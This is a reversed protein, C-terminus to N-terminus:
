LQGPCQFARLETMRFPNVVSSTTIEFLVRRGDVNLAARFKEPAATPEIQARDFLRHLAWPGELVVGSAGSPGPPSIQLRIQGTGKTGPWQISQPVAPGHAYRLMQGDIDMSFQLIAPDMEIPKFDVRVAPGRGGVFFVNRIDAARQFQLLASGREVMSADGSKRFRWPKVATDVHPALTKQFFEDLMANPAFLRAFDEPTVERAAGPVFPYRGAIAKNCFEGISTSLNQSINDRTAGLAQNAGATSLETVMSRVPEPMRAAEGRVKNALESPPPVNGSRVATDTAIMLTYVENLLSISQDLPAPVGQAPATVYARLANFRDDVLSEIRPGAPTAIAAPTRPGLLRELSKKADKAAEGVKDVTKDVANKPDSATLTVERVIARLLRALPSDPASLVRAVQITQTLNPSKVLALDAVLREWQNAYDILYLRKVENALSERGAPTQARRANDSERIGLVWTEEDALDRVVSDLAKAFGRHYGDYTYLGPIGENLSRGSKRTFVLSASQGGAQAIRFEPNDAGAGERKLRNYVRQPFPTQALNTRVQAILREDPVVSEQMTGRELLTDVHTFLERKQEADLMLGGSELDFAVWGKIVDPKMRAPDVLMLYTKLTEYRLEPNAATGRLALAIRDAIWPSLTQALLRQYAQDTGDALKRGQFLGLMQSLKPSEPDVSDTRPLARVKALVDLLIRPDRTVVGPQPLAKGLQDVKAQVDDLYRLNNLYSWTWGGLAAIAVAATAVTATWKLRSLRREWQLNTGALPSEAFIVSDLLRGLFFAKGSSRAPALLQRQLGASRALAGIVRDIPTGEQTGSTLYVGRMMPSRTLDSTAFAERLFTSLPAKLSALQRSFGFIAVRRDRDREQQLRDLAQRDIRRVLADFQQELDALPLVQAGRPDFPFTTGWVQERQERDLGDFFETFGPVLDAKTILVYVPFSNDLTSLLEHIRSRVAMSQASLEAPSLQLLDAVSVTVLAGNIPQRPRHTRLQALFERWEKADALSDSDQTTYRGATDIMVARDTFWWDCHRTGGIGRVPDNGLQGALPFQLGSNLLATTKGSGPPGIFVYWPLQYVYRRGGTLRSWWSREGGLASSGMVSIAQEFRQRITELRPDPAEAAPAVPRRALSDLLRRNTLGSWIASVIRKGLWLVLVVAITIWRANESDLPHWDAIAILPGGFWILAAIALAGLLILLPKFIRGLLKM